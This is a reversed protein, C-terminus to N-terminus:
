LLLAMPNELRRRLEALFEAGAAGDILRHDGSLTCRMTKAIRVEGQDAVARERVAGIALVGANLPDVIASAQDIDGASLDLLVFSGSMLGSDQRPATRAAAIARLGLRDAQAIVVPDEGANGTSLAIDVSDREVIGEDSWRANVIPMQRLIRALALVVFDTPQVRADGLEDQLALLADLRCEITQYFHPLSRKSLALRAGYGDPM